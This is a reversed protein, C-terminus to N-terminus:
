SQSGQFYITTNQTTFNASLTPGLLLCMDFTKSDDPLLGTDFEAGYATGLYMSVDLGTIRIAFEDQVPAVGSANLDMQTSETSANTKIQTDMAVTGNNYLTFYGGTSNSWEDAQVSGFNYTTRNVNIDIVGDPDFTIRVTDETAAFVIPTFAAIIVATILVAYLKKSEMRCGM